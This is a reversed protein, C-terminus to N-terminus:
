YIASVGDALVVMVGRMDSLRELLAVPMTYRSGAEFILQLIMQRPTFGLLRHPGNDVPSSVGRQELV